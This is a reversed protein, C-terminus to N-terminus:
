FEVGEDMMNVIWNRPLGTSREKVLDLVLQILKMPLESSFLGPNFHVGGRPNGAQLSSKFYSTTVSGQPECVSIM